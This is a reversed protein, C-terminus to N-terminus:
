SMAMEDKRSVLRYLKSQVKTKDPKTLVKERSLNM